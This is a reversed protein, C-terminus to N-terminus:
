FGCEAQEDVNESRGIMSKKIVVIAKAGAKTVRQPFGLFPVPVDEKLNGVRVDGWTRDKREELPTMTKAWIYGMENMGELRLGVVTHVEEVITVTSTNPLRGDSRHAGPKIAISTRQAIVASNIEIAAGTRAFKEPLTTRTLRGNEEHTCDTLRFRLNQDLGLIADPLKGCDVTCSLGSEFFLQLSPFFTNMTWHVIKQNILLNAPTSQGSQLNGAADVVFGATQSLYAEQPISSILPIPSETKVTTADAERLRDDKELDESLEDCTGLSTHGRRRTERYLEEIPCRYYDM